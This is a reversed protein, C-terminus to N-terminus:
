NLFEKEIYSKYNEYAKKMNSVDSKTITHIVSNESYPSSLYLQVEDDVYSSINSNNLENGFDFTLSKDTNNLIIDINELFQMFEDEKMSEGGLNLQNNKDYDYIYLRIDGKYKGMKSLSLTLKDEFDKTNSSYFTLDINEIDLSNRKYTTDYNEVIGNFDNVTDKKKDGCGTLIILTTTLILLTTKKM